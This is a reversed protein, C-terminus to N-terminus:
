RQYRQKRPVFSSMGASTIMVKSSLPGPRRDGITSRTSLTINATVSLDAVIEPTVLVFSSFPLHGGTALSSQTISLVETAVPLIGPGERYTSHQPEVAIIEWVLQSYDDAEWAIQGGPRVDCTEV